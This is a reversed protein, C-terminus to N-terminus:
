APPLRARGQWDTPGGRYKLSLSNFDFAALCPPELGEGPISSLRLSYEKRSKHQETISGTSTRVQCGFIITDRIPKVAVASVM